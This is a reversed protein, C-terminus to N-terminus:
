ITLPLYQLCNNNTLEPNLRNNQYIIIVFRFYVPNNQWHCLLTVYVDMVDFVIVPQTFILRLTWLAARLNLVSIASAIFSKKTCMRGPLRNNADDARGSNKLCFLPPVKLRRFDM